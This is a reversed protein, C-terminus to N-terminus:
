SWQEWVGGWVCAHLGCSLVFFKFKLCALTKTLIDATMENTPCYILKILGWSMVDWTFLFHVNIHKSQAHYMGDWTLTIASQNDCLLTTPFTLPWIYNLSTVQSFGKV